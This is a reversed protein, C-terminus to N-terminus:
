QADAPPAPKATSHRPQLLARWFGPVREARAVAYLTERGQNIEPLLEVLTQREEETIPSGPKRDYPRLLALRLGHRAAGEVASWETHSLAASLAERGDVWADFTLRPPDLLRKWVGEVIEEYLLGELYLLDSQVLRAVLMARRAARVRENAAAVLGNLVGGVFVGLLAFAGVVLATTV